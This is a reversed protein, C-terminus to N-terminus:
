REVTYAARARNLHAGLFPLPDHDPHCYLHSDAADYIVGNIWLGLGGPFKTLHDTGSSTLITV